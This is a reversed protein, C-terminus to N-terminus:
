TQSPHSRWRCWVYMRNVFPNSHILMRVNYLLQNPEVSVHLAQPVYSVAFGEPFNHLTMTLAM